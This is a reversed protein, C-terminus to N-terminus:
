GFFKSVLKSDPRRTAYTVAVSAIASGIFGWVFSHLGLLEYPSFNGTRSYGEVYLALLILSSSLMGAIAGPANM